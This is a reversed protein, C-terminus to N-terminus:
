NMNESNDQVKSFILQIYRVSPLMTGQYVHTFVPLLCRLYIPAMEPDGKPESTEPKDEALVMEEEEKKEKDADTEAPRSAQRNVPVM